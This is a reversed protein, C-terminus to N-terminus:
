VIQLSISDNRLAYIKALQQANLMDLNGHLMHLALFFQSAGLVAIYRMKRLATEPKAPCFGRFGGGGLTLISNVGRVAGM